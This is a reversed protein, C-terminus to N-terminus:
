KKSQKFIPVTSCPEGFMISKAVKQFKETFAMLVKEVDNIKSCGKVILRQDQYEQLPTQEIKELLIDTKISSIDGKFVKKAYPQLAVTVLMYAWPQLIADESCYVGVYKNEYQSWDHEKIFNRFDKEKLVLGQWLCDKLDFVALEEEKLWKEFDVQELASQAVKNVIEEAM